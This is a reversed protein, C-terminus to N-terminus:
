RNERYTTWQSDMRSDQGGTFQFMCFDDTYDMFNTIPDTGPSSCSDRGSPCGYAASGEAPTDSVFDGSGTCGGQFTHYLGMWHGVEHTATDGLNYPAASGGPVSQDLIVVGDDYSRSAFSSPFTAWGLLGGQLNASYVNLHAAPGYPKQATRHGACRLSQKMDRENKSGSRLNYWNRNSTRDTSALQFSWGTSAYAANLVDIQDAIWQDSINGSGGYYIVHWHVTITGGTAAVKGNEQLMAFHSEVAELVAPDIHTACRRGSDIFAKQNEFTMGQWEFPAIDEPNAATPDTVPAQQRDKPARNGLRTRAEGPQVFLVATVAVVVIACM